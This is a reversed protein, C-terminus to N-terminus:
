IAVLEAGVVVKIVCYSYIDQQFTELYDGPTSDRYYRKFEVADFYRTRQDRLHGGWRVDALAAATDAFTSGIREGYAEVLQCLYPAEEDLLEDPTVGRPAEGPDDDFWEVLAPKIYQDDVLKAADLAFVKEFDFASIMALIEPTLSVTTNEVLDPACYEDWKDICARRFREPHAIFTQVNRVVGRPAIFTYERPLTFADAAAHMFIKGLELFAARESLRAQLQKCQFNDWPGEHRRTTVYGVVDRGMDGAGSWRECQVYDRTRRTLWDKVFAELREDNLAIVRAAYNPRM